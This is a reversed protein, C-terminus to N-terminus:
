TLESPTLTTRAERNRVSAETPAMTARTLPHWAAVVVGDGVPPGVGTAEAHDWGSGVTEEVGLPGAPSHTGAPVIDRGRVAV